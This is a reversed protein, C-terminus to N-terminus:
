SAPRVPNEIGDGEISYSVFNTVDPFEVTVERGDGKNLSVTQTKSEVVKKGYILGVTLEVSSDVEGVNELTFVVRSPNRYAAQKIIKFKAEPSVPQVAPQVAEASPAAEPATPAAAPATPAKACAALFVALVGLLFLISKIKM